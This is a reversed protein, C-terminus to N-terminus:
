FCALMYFVIVIYIAEPVVDLTRYELLMRM